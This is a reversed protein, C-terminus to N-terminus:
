YTFFNFLCCFQRITDKVAERVETIKWCYLIPNLSSNLYVLTLSFLWVIQGTKTIGSINMILAISGYPVYCAVLALQVWAISSVTKKYKAINLPTAQENPQGQQGHQQVQAQHQRLKLFINTYSFISILLSLLVIVSFVIFSFRRSWFYGVLAVSIALLWLCILIACVRWLTVVHRYRLGLMLALLRDVSIATSVMVSVGCFVFSSANAATATYYFVSSNIDATHSLHLNYIAFLPQAVLGVSLDTAALCRFLLKTPPHLPSVKHLAILILINGFSAIVSLFINLACLFVPLTSQQISASTYNRKCGGTFNEM